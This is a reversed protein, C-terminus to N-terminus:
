RARGRERGTGQAAARPRAAGLYSAVVAPDERVAAPTGEAIVRGRELCYIRDAVAMLFPMDHEVVLIACGLEDAVARILPRFAETERQAIGSTPEDLVMLRPRTAAQAALDCIHRTGTSLRDGPLDAFATLGFREIIDDAEAVLKTETLRVWPAGVLAGFAGTPHQRHLALEVTERVTLTPFLRADQFGRSVGLQARRAPALASVERGYLLVGGSSPVRGGIANLLSTKGAGNAGIVGVIEGAAVELTVADVAHVGGFSVSVDRVSLAVSGAEPKTITAARTPRERAAATSMPAAARAAIRDLRRQFRGRVVSVIGGPNVIQTLVLGVGSLFLQLQVTNPIIGYVLDGFLLPLGFIAISGLIAGAVSSVGGIVVAALVLMSVNSGTVQVSVNRNVALWLVGAAAALAGSTAFTTLRVLAPSFGFTAATSANDRVAVIARGANSRRLRALAFGAVVLVALAAFYVSKQTALRGLGAQYAPEVSSTGPPALWTQRFLWVPGVVAVGLSTVALTLGRSRAAPLGAVLAFAAGVVAAIVMTALLSWGRPALRAATFAGIAVFAFQGLSVQGGWGSLMTLSLAALAFVAAHALVFTHHPERLWPLFPLLIGISTAAGAAVLTRRRVFWRDAIAEPIRLPEESREIQVDDAEAAGVAVSRVLLGVLVTAFVAAVGAGTSHGLHIGVGDVIGLGVGAVIAGSLSTFGALAAAGLGLLLLLPSTSHVELVAQGPSTLVAGVASLGGTIAWAVTSTRRLDIGALRAADPNSAAARMSRGFASSRLWLALALLVTPAIVAILVHRATVVLGDFEWFSDFPLPYGDEQLRSRDPGLWEFYALALLLQSLGLTAIMVSTRSADELRAIVLHHCAAGVLVGLAVAVVFALYWSAGLDLVLKALLLTSLIGLQANAFNVFREAKYVLVVGVGLLAILLGELSGLLIAARM